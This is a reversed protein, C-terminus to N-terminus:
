LPEVEDPYFYRFRGEEARLGYDADDDVVVAVYKEGEIDAFVGTVTATRGALFMDQADTRRGVLAGPRLRVRSGSRVTAGAIAVSDDAPDHMDAHLAAFVDDPLADVRDVIAAARPDTARARRKEDPTLTRVRLALIEDIETADFMDGPSDAAISPFDYLIIPSALVLNRSEPDGILVPFMGDNTCAAVAARAEDPPDLASAFRGARVHVMVHVGLMSHHLSESRKVAAADWETLNEVAVGVRVMGAGVPTSTLRVVGDLVKRERSIRTTADLQETGSWAAIRFPEVHEAHEGLTFGRVDVAHEVGEDWTVFHEGGFDLEAVSAFAGDRMVEVARHQAQLFRVRVEIQAQTADTAIVETQVRWREFGDAESHAKPTLVGFQFRLQNKPASARYPYLVYGEWLVSDAVRQAPAFPDRDATV